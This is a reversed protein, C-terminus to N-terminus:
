TVVGCIKGECKGVGCAGKKVCAKMNSEGGRRIVGCMAEACCKRTRIVPKKHKVARSSEVSTSQEMELDNHIMVKVRIVM